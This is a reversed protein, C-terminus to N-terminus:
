MIHTALSFAALTPDLIAHGARFSKTVMGEVGVLAALAQTLANGKRPPSARKWHQRRSVAIPTLRSPNSNVHGSSTGPHKRSM